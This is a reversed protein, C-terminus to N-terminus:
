YKGANVTKKETRQIMTRKEKNKLFTIEIFRQNDLEFGTRGNSYM